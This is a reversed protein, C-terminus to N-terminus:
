GAFSATSSLCVLAMACNNFWAPWVTWKKMFRNMGGKKATLIKKLFKFIVKKLLKLLNLEKRHFCSFKKTKKYINLPNLNDVIPEIKM